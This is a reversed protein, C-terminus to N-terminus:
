RNPAGSSRNTTPTSINLMLWFALLPLYHRTENIYGFCVITALVILSWIAARRFEESRVLAILIALAAVFGISIHARGGTFNGAFLQELNHAVHLHNSILPTMQEYVQNPLDPQGIYFRERLLWIIGGLLAAGAAGWALSRRSLLLWLPLYLVTEHNIAGIAMLPVLALPPADRAALFAFAFFLLLDIEDWPYELKYLLLFRLFGFIAVAAISKRWSAGSRRALALLLLNAALIALADYLRLGALSALWAGLFRQQWSKSVPHGDLVGRVGALVFDVSPGDAFLLREFIKWEALSIWAVLATAALPRKV